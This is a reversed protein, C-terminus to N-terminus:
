FTTLGLFGEKTNILNRLEAVRAASSESGGFKLFKISHVRMDLDGGISGGTIKNLVINDAYDKNTAKHGSIPLPLNEIEHKKINIADEMPFSEKRSLFIERTSEYSIVKNTNGQVPYNDKPIILAGIM